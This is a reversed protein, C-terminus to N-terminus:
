CEEPKVCHQDSERRVTGSPCGCGIICQLTCIGGEDKYNSCTKPCASYCTGFEEGKSEDCKPKEAQCVAVSVALAVILFFAKM